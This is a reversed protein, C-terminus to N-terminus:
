MNVPPLFADKIWETQCVSGNKSDVVVVVVDFRVEKCVHYQKIYSNTAYVINRVKAYNIKDTPPVSFGKRRTKVEVVVLFKENEAVIDLEGRGFRWNRNQVIYGESQLLEAAKEEGFKGLENHLAM